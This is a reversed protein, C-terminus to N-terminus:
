ILWINTLCFAQLFPTITFGKTTQPIGLFAQQLNPFPAPVAEASVYVLDTGELRPFSAGPTKAGLQEARLGKCPNTPPPIWSKLM